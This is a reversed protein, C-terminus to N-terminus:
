RYIRKLQREAIAITGNADERGLCFNAFMDVVIFDGIAAAANEGVHGIGAATLTRKGANAFPARKPDATWVPNADYANLCHTLYGQSGILWKDFNEKELMFAMFAKCANPSKTFNFAFMPFALQLETPKGVPGVPMVAHDMDDAIAKKTPDAQAAVYISIGNSTLYLEGALFAKNNSSDNWSGVGPIFTESLAKAYDLAKRTEASNIIVKDDKDVTYAGHGWLIWHLWSNADGTAHGLAFGAPTNKAKLAKCLDLFGPFDKPFEKFGADNMAKIRYNMYGGAYAIPIALWKDGLRCTAEAAPVWGGYKKGLYNAVDTMDLVKTPFLQPLAHTGWVIDLGQGTNAAVAAKPQIDEYSESSVTIEVGTAKSFAAVTAMFAEDEAVVFRKWRILNLKAGAEPKWQADQAWAKAFRLLDTGGLVGAGAAATGQLVSRRTFNFNTM